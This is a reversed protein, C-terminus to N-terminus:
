GNVLPPDNRLSDILPPCISAKGMYRPYFPLFWIDLVQVYFFGCFLLAAALGIIVWYRRRFSPVRSMSIMLLGAVVTSITCPLIMWQIWLEDWRNLGEKALQEFFALAFPTFLFLMVIGFATATWFYCKTRYVASVFQNELTLDAFSFTNRLTDGCSQTRRSRGGKLLHSALSSPVSDSSHSGSTSPNALLRSSESLQLSKNSSTPHLM